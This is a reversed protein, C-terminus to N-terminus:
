QGDALNVINKHTKVAYKYAKYAGSNERKEAYFLVLDSQDIMARNRYYISTYWWDFEKYPCDYGEYEKQRFWVPPKKLQKDLPFCFIRKIDSRLETTKKMTVVDYVLNDFSSRGGFLFVRVGDAIAKDIVNETKARLEDTIEVDFHGFCSCVKEGSM